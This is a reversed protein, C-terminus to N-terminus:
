TLCKESWKSINKHVMVHVHLKTVLLFTLESVRLQEVSKAETEEYM